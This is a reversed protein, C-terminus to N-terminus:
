AGFPHSIIPSTLGGIGYQLSLFFFLCANWHFIVFIFSLLKTIRFTNPFNTRMETKDFFEGVKYCKILRNLRLMPQVGAAAYLVDTPLISVVDM